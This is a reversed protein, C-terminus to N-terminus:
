NNMNIDYSLIRWPSIKEENWAIALHTQGTEKRKQGSGSYIFEDLQKFLVYTSVEHWWVLYVFISKLPLSLDPSLGQLLSLSSLFLNSYKVSLSCLSNPIIKVNYFINSLMISCFFNFATLDEFPCYRYIINTVLVLKNVQWLQFIDFDFM